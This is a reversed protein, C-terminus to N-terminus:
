PRVAIGAFINNLQVQMAARRHDGAHQLRKGSQWIASRGFGTLKRAACNQVALKVQGTGFGNGIQNVGFGGGLLHLREALKLTIQTIQELAPTAFQM